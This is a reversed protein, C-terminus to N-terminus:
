PIYDFLVISSKCLRVPIGIPYVFMMIIAYAIMASYKPTNDPWGCEMSLDMALLRKYEM